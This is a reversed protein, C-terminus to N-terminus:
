NIVLKKTTLLRDKSSLKVFYIGRNLKTVDITKDLDNKFEFQYIKKGLANYIILDNLLIAKDSVVIKFSTTAPNPILNISNFFYQEFVSATPSVIKYITGSSLDACYIKGSPSEGFTSININFSNSTVLMQNANNTDLAM